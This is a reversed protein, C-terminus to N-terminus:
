IISLEENYPIQLYDFAFKTAVRGRPTKKIFGSQILFPECVDEITEVEESVSDSITSIGVPGGNFNIVIVELIKLDLEDLGMKDISQAEFAKIADEKKINSINYVQAYDRVRKLLRNAIRATGRSRNAIELIAGNDLKVNLINASRFVIEAIDEQTYYDLRFIAGFRERLPAAILGIRTTAGIITFPNLDIRVIDASPGTGIVVDLAYDEMASYLKEEIIKNLRHIEDIFLIDGKSLRTVISAIDAARTLAPGSTIKINVGMESAVVSSLTTKGLGPPGYFLIHDLVDGRSKAADILISLNQKEKKRGIVDNFTMPRINKFLDNEKILDKNMNKVIM